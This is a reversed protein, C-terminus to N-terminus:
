ENKKLVSACCVSQSFDSTGSCSSPIASLYFWSPQLLLHTTCVYPFRIRLRWLGSRIRGRSAPCHLHRWVSGNKPFVSLCSFFFFFVQDSPSACSFPICYLTLFQVTPKGKTCCTPCLSLGKWGSTRRVQCGLFGRAPSDLIVTNRSSCSGANEQRKLTFYLCV